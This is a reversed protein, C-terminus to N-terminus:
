SIRGDLQVTDQLAHYYNHNNQWRNELTSWWLNNLISTVNAKSDYIGSVFKGGSCHTHEIKKINYQRIRIRFPLHTKLSPDWMPRVPLRKSKELATTCTASLFLLLQMPRRLLLMFMVQTNFKLKNDVNLGFYKVSKVEELTGGHITYSDSIPEQKTTVRVVQCNSPNFQILRTQELKQLANADDQIYLTDRTYAQVTDTIQLSDQAQTDLLPQYIM